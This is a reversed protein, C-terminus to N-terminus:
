STALDRLYYFKDETWNNGKIRGLYGTLPSSLEVLIEQMQEPTIKNSTAFSFSYAAHLSDVSARSFGTNELYKKVIQIIQARLNIEEKITNIYKQIEEDSQGSKLHEKLKFLDIANRYTNQLEVLKELTEPNIIAMNQIKAAQKLQKTPEGPGIILKAAQKFLEQSQLRLTGLNLLQVATDNPIKKGAKCEAVLPYPQSCFVDVGGAGGKHFYDVQFGLFELSKRVINEFDTGAQYNSKGNDQEKSRNGLTSIQKIWDSDKASQNKIPKHNWGLFVEIEQQLEKAKPNTLSLNALDTQLEELEPNLPPELNQLQKQRQTFTKDTLIPNSNSVKISNPLSVFKGLKNEIDINHVIKEHLTLEYVRLFCLFIYQQQHLMNQLAESTWVTLQSLIDLPQTDDLIKCFECKAWAKVLVEEPNLKNEISKTFSLFNSRYYQEVSFRCETPYLSFKLGPRIFMRPLAVVTRGQILAEIDLKPLCLGTQISFLQNM